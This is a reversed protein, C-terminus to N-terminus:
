IMYNTKSSITSFLCNLYNIGSSFPFFIYRFINEDLKSNIFQNINNLIDDFNEEKFCFSRKNFKFKALFQIINENKQECNSQLEYVFNYYQPDNELKDGKDEIFIYEFITKRHIDQIDLLKDLLNLNNLKQFIELFFGKDRLKVLKHLFTECATDQLSLYKENEKFFWEFKSEYLSFNLNRANESIQSNNKKSKYLEYLVYLYHMFISNGSTDFLCTNELLEKHQSFFQEPKEYFMTIVKKKIPKKKLSKFTKVLEINEAFEMRAMIRQAEPDFKFCSNIFDTTFTYM